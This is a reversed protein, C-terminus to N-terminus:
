VIEGKRYTAYPNISRSLIQDYFVLETLRMWDIVDTEFAQWPEVEYPIIKVIRDGRKEKPIEREYFGCTCVHVLGALRYTQSHEDFSSKVQVYNENVWEYVSDEWIKSMSLMFRDEHEPTRLYQQVAKDIDDPKRLPDTAMLGVLIDDPKAMDRILNVIPVFGPVDDGEHPRMVVKAGYKEAVEAIGDDDTTVWFEDIV